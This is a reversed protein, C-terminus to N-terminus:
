PCRNGGTIDCGRAAILRRTNWGYTVTRFVRDHPVVSGDFAGEVRDFVRPLREGLKGVGTPAWGVIARRTRESNRVAQTGTDPHSFRTSSWTASGVVREKRNTAEPRPADGCCDDHLSRRPRRLRARPLRTAKLVSIHSTRTRLASPGTQVNSVEGSVHKRGLAALRSVGCLACIPRTRQSGEIAKGSRDRWLLPRVSKPCAARKPKRVIGFVHRQM